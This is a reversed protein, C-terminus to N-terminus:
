VVIHLRPDICNPRHDVAVLVINTYKYKHLQIQRKIPTNAHRDGLFLTKPTRTGLTKGFIASTQDISFKSNQAFYPGKLPPLPDGITFWLWAMLM